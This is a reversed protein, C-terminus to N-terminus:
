GLGPYAPIGLPFPLFIFFDYVTDLAFYM